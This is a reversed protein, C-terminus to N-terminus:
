IDKEKNMIHQYPMMMEKIVQHNYINNNSNRNNNKHNYKM